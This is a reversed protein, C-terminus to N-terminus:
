DEKAPLEKKLHRRIFLYIGIILLIGIVADFKHFIPSLTSHWKAGFVMGLWTLLINWPISGVTTYICFKVFNMKAIGAPLSIFTRIVPMNRTFFITLEGYKKFWREAVDLDHSSMLIYKGYKLLFPRGGIIGVWYAIISGVLNGLTGAVVVWFMTFRGELILYGSFPMIIESPLPICASEIAMAIGVGWYGAVDIMGKVITALFELITTVM